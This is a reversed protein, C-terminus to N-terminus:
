SFPSRKDHIVLRGAQYIQNFLKHTGKRTFGCFNQLMLSIM